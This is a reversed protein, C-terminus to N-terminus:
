QWVTSPVPSERRTDAYMATAQNSVLSTEMPINLDQFLTEMAELLEDMHDQPLNMKLM